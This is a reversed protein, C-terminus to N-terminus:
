IEIRCFVKSSGLLSIKILSWPEVSNWIFKLTSPVQIQNLSFDRSFIFAVTCVPGCRAPGYHLQASLKMHFCPFSAAGCRLPPPALMEGPLRHSPPPPPLLSSAPSTRFGIQAGTFSHAWWLRSCAAACPPQFPVITLHADSPWYNNINRICSRLRMFNDIYCKVPLIRWTHYKYKGMPPLIEIM